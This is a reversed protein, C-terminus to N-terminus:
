KFHWTYCLFPTETNITHNQWVTYMVYSIYILLDLKLEQILHTASSIKNNWYNIINAGRWWISKRYNYSSIVTTIAWPFILFEYMKTPFGSPFLASPLDLLVNLCLIDATPNSARVHLTSDEPIYRRATRYLWGVKPSVHPKWWRPQLNLEAQQRSRAAKKRPNRKLGSISAVHEESIWSVKV